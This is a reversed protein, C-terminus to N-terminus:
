LWSSTATPSITPQINHIGHTLLHSIRESWSLCPSVWFSLAKKVQPCSMELSPSRAVTYMKLSINFVLGFVMGAWSVLLYCKLLASTGTAKAILCQPAGTLRQGDVYAVQSILEYATSPSFPLVLAGILVFLINALTGYLFILATYFAARFSGITSLTM